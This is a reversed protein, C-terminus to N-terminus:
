DHGEVSEGFFATPIILIDIAVDLRFRSFEQFCVAMNWGSINISVDVFHYVGTVM